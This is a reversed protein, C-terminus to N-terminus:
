PKAPKTPKAPNGARAKGDPLLIVAKATLTKGDSSSLGEVVMNSGVKVDAQTANTLTARADAKALSKYATSSDLTVTMGKRNRPTSLTVTNGSVSKVQGTVIGNGTTVVRIGWANLTRQSTTSKDAPKAPNGLVEIKDGVKLSGVSKFGSNLVVTDATTSVTVESGRDTTVTITNGSIAKIAGMALHDGVQGKQPRKAKEDPMGCRGQTIVRANIVGRQATTMGAVNAPRNTQIDQLTGEVCRGGSEQVIIWTNPGVNATVQGQRTTLAISNTSVADVRGMIRVPRSTDTGATPPPTQASAAGGFLGIMLAATLTSISLMIKNRKM